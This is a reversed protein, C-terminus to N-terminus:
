EGHDVGESYFRQEPLHLSETDGFGKKLEHLARALLKKVANPSRNMRVAIDAVALKEIRALQIVIRYDPSLGRLAEQLRDSREQRRLNKSPSAGSDPIDRHLQLPARRVKQSAGLIVNQAISTLWGFFAREGHWSLRDIHQFAKAFTEQVVDPIDIENLVQQGARTKVFGDLRPAYLAVLEDFAERNGAAARYALDETADPQTM